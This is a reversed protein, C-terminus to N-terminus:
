GSCGEEGCFSGGRGGRFFHGGRGRLGDENGAEAVLYAMSGLVEGGVQRRMRWSFVSERRGQDTFVAVTGARAIEECDGHCGDFGHCGRASVMVVASRQFGGANSGGEVCEPSKSNVKSNVRNDGGGSWIVVSCSGREAGELEIM